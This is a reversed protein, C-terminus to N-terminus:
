RSHRRLPISSKSSYGVSDSVDDVECVRFLQSPATAQRMDESSGSSRVRGSGIERDIEQFKNLDSRLQKNLDERYEEYIEFTM